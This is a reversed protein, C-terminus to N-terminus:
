KESLNVAGIDCMTQETEIKVALIEKFSQIVSTANLTGNLTGNMIYHIGGSLQKIIDVCSSSRLVRVQLSTKEESKVKNGLKM